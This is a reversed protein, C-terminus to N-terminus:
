LRRSRKFGIASLLLFVLAMASPEPIDDKVRSVAVVNTGVIQINDIHATVPNGGDKGRIRFKFDDTFSGLEREELTKSFTGLTPIGTFSGWASIDGLDDSWTRGGDTSYDVYVLRTATTTDWEYDFTITVSTAQNSHLRLDDTMTLLGEDWTCVVAAAGTGKTAYNMSGSGAHTYLYASGQATWNGLSGEFTDTM